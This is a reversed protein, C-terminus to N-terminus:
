ADDDSLGGWDALRRPLKKSKPAAPSAAPSSADASRPTSARLSARRPPTEPLVEVDFTEARWCRRNPSLRKSACATGDISLLDESSRRPSIGRNKECVRSGRTSSLSQAHSFEDRPPAHPSGARRRMSKYLSRVGKSPELLFARKAGGGRAGVILDFRENKEDDDGRVFHYPVPLLDIPADPNFRCGLSVTSTPRRLHVVCMRTSWFFFGGLVGFLVPFAEAADDEEDHLRAAGARRANARLHENTPLLLSGLLLPHSASPPLRGTSFSLTNSETNPQQENTSTARQTAGIM